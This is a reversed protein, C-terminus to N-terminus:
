KIRLSREIATVLKAVLMLTQTKIRGSLLGTKNKVDKFFVDFLVSTLLDAIYRSITIFLNLAAM